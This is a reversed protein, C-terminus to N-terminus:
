SILSPDFFTNFYWGRVVLGVYSKLRSLSSVKELSV